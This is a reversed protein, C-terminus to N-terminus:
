TESFKCRHILPSCQYRTPSFPLRYSLLCDDLCCGGEGESNGADDIQTSCLHIDEPAYTTDDRCQVFSLISSLFDNM